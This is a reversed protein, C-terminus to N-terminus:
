ETMGSDRALAANRIFEGGEACEQPSLAHAFSIALPFLVVAIGIQAECLAPFRQRCPQTQTSALSEARTKM